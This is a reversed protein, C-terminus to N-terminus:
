EYKARIERVIQRIARGEGFCDCLHRQRDTEGVAQVVEGRQGQIHLEPSPLGYIVAVIDRSGCRPCPSHEAVPEPKPETM